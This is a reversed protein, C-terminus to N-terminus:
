LCHFYGDKHPIIQPHLKFAKYFNINISTKDIVTVQNWLKTGQPPDM